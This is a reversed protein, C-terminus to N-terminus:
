LGSASAWLSLKSHTMLCTVETRQVKKDGETVAWATSLSFHSAWPRIITIITM